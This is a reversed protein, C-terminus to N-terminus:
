HGMQSNVGFKVLEWQQSDLLYIELSCFIGISESPSTLIFLCIYDLPRAFCLLSVCLNYCLSLM